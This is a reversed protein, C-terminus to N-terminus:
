RISERGLATANTLEIMSRSCAVYYLLIEEELQGVTEKMRQGSKLQAIKTIAESVAHNLDSAIEVSSWELGKSSHATTLTLNSNKAKCENCYAVLENLGSASHKYVVKVARKVDEDNSLKELVYALLEPYRMQLSKSGDWGARLKEIHKYTSEKIAKGNELNALILPLELIAEIKRTTHFV